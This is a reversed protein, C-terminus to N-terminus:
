SSSGTEIDIRDTTLLQLGDERLTALGRSVYGRVTGVGCGLATAIETDSLGGFYRMALVAQQRRPLRLLRSQLAGRDAHTTADDPRDDFLEVDSMPVVRAWKRRWSLFENVLMKRVYFEPRDLREIKAWRQHTKLLVDQVLDEALGRDGSMATMLGLLPRLQAAVFEEFTV